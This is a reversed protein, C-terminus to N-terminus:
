NILIKNIISSNDLNNKNNINSLLEKLNNNFKETDFDLNDKFIKPHITEKKGKTFIEEEIKEGELLNTIKIEIDGNPNLEDKVTLGNLSIIKKALDIIKIPNGMDLTFIELGQSLACSQIVLEAAEDISMFYRSVDKHRVFVTRRNSILNQFLPVVSGSSGLVNGFRVCSFKTINNNSSICIKECINKIKGMYSSPNIAKDSSILIYTQSKYELSLKISNICINITNRTSENLNENFIKVHKNAAANFVIHPEHERFINELLSSNYSVDILYDKVVSSNYEMMQQVKFISEENNDLLIIEKPQLQSIKKFIVKGISGGAGIIMIKKGKIFNEYIAFIPEVKERQMLDELNVDSFINQEKQILSSLKFDLNNLLKIQNVKCKTSTLIDDIYKSNNKSNCILLLSDNENFNVSNIKGFDIYNINEIKRNLNTKDINIIFKIDFDSIYDKLRLINDLTFTNDFLLVLRKKQIKEKNQNIFFFILFRSFTILLFTFAINVVWFKNIVNIYGLSRYFKYLVIYIFSYVILVKILNSLLKIGYYSLSDQNVRFFIFTISYVIFSTFLIIFDKSSLSLFESTILLSFIHAFFILTLDNFILIYTKFKRIKEIM